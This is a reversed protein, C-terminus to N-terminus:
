IRGYVNRDPMTESLSVDLYGERELEEISNFGKNKLLNEVNGDYNRDAWAQYMAQKSDFDLNLSLVYEESLYWDNFTNYAYLSHVTLKKIETEDETTVEATYTGNITPDINTNNYTKEIENDSVKLIEDGYPDYLKM